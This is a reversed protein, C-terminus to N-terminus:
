KIGGLATSLKAFANKCKAVDVAANANTGIEGNLYAGAAKRTNVIDSPALGVGPTAITAKIKALLDANTKSADVLPGAGKFVAALFAVKGAKGADADLAYAQKLSLALPDAPPPPDPPPVPAPPAPPGLIVVEVDAEEIVIAKDGGGTFAALTVIYTGPPGTFIICDGSKKIQSPKLKPYVQWTFGAKDAAGTAKLTVLNHEEVKLKGTITLEGFSAGALVLLLLCCTALRKVKRVEQDLLGGGM